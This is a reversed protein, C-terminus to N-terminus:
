LKLVLNIPVIAFIIKKMINIKLVMQLVAAIEFILNM